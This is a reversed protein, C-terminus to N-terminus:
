VTYNIMLPHKKSPENATHIVSGLDNIQNKTPHIHPFSFHEEDPIHM